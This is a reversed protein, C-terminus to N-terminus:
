FKLDLAFQGTRINVLVFAWPIKKLKRQIRFEQEAAVAFLYDFRQHLWTDM